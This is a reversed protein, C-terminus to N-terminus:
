INIKFPLTCGSVTINNSFQLDLVYKNVVNKVKAPASGEYRINYTQGNEIDYIVIFDLDRRISVRKLYDGFPKEARASPCEVIIPEPEPLSEEPKGVIHTGTLVGFGANVGLDNTEEVEVVPEANLQEDLEILITYIESNTLEIKSVRDSLSILSNRYNEQLSIEEKLQQFDESLSLFSKNLKTVGSKNKDINSSTINTTTFFDMILSVLVASIIIKFKM